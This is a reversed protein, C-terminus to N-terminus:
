RLARRGAGLYDGLDRSGQPPVSQAVADKDAALSGAIVLPFRGPPANRTFPGEGQAEGWALWDFRSLRPSDNKNDKNDWTLHGQVRADYGRADAGTGAQLRVTGELRVRRAKADEIVLLLNRERIEARTWFPPEGRVNDVLHFRVLRAAFAEPVPYRAGNQWHAPALARLDDPTLWLHDRGTAQNPTWAEGSRPAPLPIRTFVTMVRGGEPLRRAFQPDAATSTSATWRQASRRRALTKAKAQAKDLLALFREASPHFHDYALLTGDARALYIGQPAAGKETARGTQQGLRRVLRGDADNQRNLYWKDGAYPVFETQLRRVVTPDSFVLARGTV